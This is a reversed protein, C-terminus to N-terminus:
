SGARGVDHREAYRPALSEMQHMVSVIAQPQQDPPYKYKRLLRKISSRMKAKVDDRVTWDTRIDRQMIRVLDRAIQALTDDGMVDLASPNQAIVDYVSLEDTGLPPSFREGRSAEASVEQAMEILQTIIEAATLQKNTYKLMLENIRDSFLTSRVQNGRTVQAAEELITAKLAEIALQSKSPKKAEEVWGPTIADLRQLDLGAEQYIDVVGTSEASDVLLEGLLRRVEDSVPEGRSLRDRADYKAMWVRVEKYFQVEPLLPQIDAHGAALAWARDLKASLSRFADALPRVDPDEPDTNGETLPSRLFNATATVADIHGRRVDSNQIARWDLTVIERLSGVLSHVLQAAEDVDRRGASPDTPDVEHTFERLAANLNELLPAYAVLLGDQKGKFTRNVRALTQMLLAGKISRDLYLTHLAPADFGTLMMDKVIVIELEDSPDKVRQKVAAIAGPRRMHTKIQAPDSPNATYVVKIKGKADSDDHWDPRLAVIEEYLRAAISRTATVIMAKGPGEIMPRLNERRQEWHAVFDAALTALRDPAGYLAELVAVSQQLRQKDVEDLGTTAEEAADDIADDDLDALRALQILRPEFYVPVTANDEVARRLDYVDIDAGFVERTDRDAERIPTGTFAILAANPLASRLHRAYGDLDGYHSRHAEDAIVIINRRDSLLPHATGAEREAQSRGFKQLTTFYIGGTRRQSLQSRLEERSGVQRPQEPLLTSRQFGDFLQTDLETRDTLVVITPNALQPHGMVKATYLEMEMSKGSGQTHWVVGIKGDSRVASITSGVAKTVAFYQHPKAIRKSLGGADEDFAVFDHLLQGFRELNFLGNLTWDIETLIEGDPGPEGIAVPRGDDDVNWSAFHNWPTFATGYRANIGDTAVVFAAFRFAMPLETVYTQLQNFAAEATAARSGAQKLEMIALPLGNVYAIVDFRREVQGRRLTVQNVVRYSNVAPDGSLFRIVPTRERGDHDVYTIGRYGDRLIEHLRHNETIADQSQPALVEAAAQQLYEGPVEPNLNKLARDLTGRLVIDQWSEREGSGPAVEAGPTFRWDLEAMRDIVLQEWADEGTHSSM